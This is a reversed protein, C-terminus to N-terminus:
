AFGIADVVVARDQTVIIPNCEFERLDNRLQWGLEAIREITRVLEGVAHPAQGRAGNMPHWIALRPLCAEIYARTFPPVLTVTDKTFNAWMGGSGITLRMGFTADRLCGVLIEMGPGVQEMVMVKTAKLRDVMSACAAVLEEETAIGVVVGGVDSKHPVVPSAIKMVCPFRVQGAIRRIRAPSAHWREPCDVGFRELLEMCQQETLVRTGDEATVLSKRVLGLKAAPRVIAPRSGAPLQRTAGAKRQGSSAKSLVDRLPRLFRVPDQYVILGADSARQRIADPVGFWSIVLTKDTANQLRLFIDIVQTSQEPTGKGSLLFLLIGTQPDELLAKLSAELISLDNVVQATVDVPNRIRGYSPVVRALTRETVKSLKALEIGLDVCCDAVYVGAGGTTTAVTVKPRLKRMTFVRAYDNLDQVSSVRTVGYRDFAAQYGADESSLRGTHSSVADRGVDSTGVKILVLPKGKAQLRAAASCFAAGDKLAEIYGVVAETSKDDALYTLYSAFDLDAENGTAIMHSFRAGALLSDSWINTAIGGSQSLLAVPGPKEVPLNMLPGAFTLSRRTVFSIQGLCNPGLIAIGHKHAYRELWDQAASGAGGSEGFGASFVVAGKLGKRKLRPLLGKISEAAVCFIAVDVSGPIEEPQAFCPIGQVSAYKPNLGYMKGAYKYKKLLFIPMGGIRTPEESAGVIVVSDFSFLIAPSNPGAPSSTGQPM